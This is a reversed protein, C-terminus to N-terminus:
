FTSMMPGLDEKEMEVDTLNGTDAMHELLTDRQRVGGRINYRSCEIAEDLHQAQANRFRM